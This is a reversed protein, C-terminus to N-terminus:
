ALVDLVLRLERATDQAEAQLRLHEAATRERQQRVYTVAATGHSLAQRDMSQVRATVMRRAADLKRNAEALEQATLRLSSALDQEVQTPTADDM